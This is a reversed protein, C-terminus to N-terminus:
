VARTFVTVDDGASLVITLNAYRVGNPIAHYTGAATSAALTGVATGSEKIAVTGTLPANVSVGYLLVSGFTTTGSGTLKKPNSDNLM